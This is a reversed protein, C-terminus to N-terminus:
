EGKNERKGMGPTTEAPMMKWKCVHTYLMQMINVRRYGKEV